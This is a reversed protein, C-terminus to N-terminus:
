GKRILAKLGGLLRDRKRLRPPRSEKAEKDTVREHASPNSAKILAEIDDDTRIGELGLAGTAEEVFDGLMPWIWDSPDLDDLVDEQILTRRVPADWRADVAKRDTLRGGEFLSFGGYATEEDYLVFVARDHLKSLEEGLLVEPEDGDCLDLQELLALGGLEFLRWGVFTYAVGRHEGHGIRPAEEGVLDEVEPIKAIAAVVQEALVHGPLLLATNRESM